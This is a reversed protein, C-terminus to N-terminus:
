RIKRPEWPGARDKRTLYTNGHREIEKADSVSEVGPSGFL